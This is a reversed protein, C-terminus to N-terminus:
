LQLKEHLTEIMQVSFPFSLSTQVIQTVNIPLGPQLLSNFKKIGSTKQVIVTIRDHKM